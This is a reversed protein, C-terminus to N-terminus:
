LPLMAVDVPTGHFVQKLGERVLLKELKEIREELHKIYDVFSQSPCM